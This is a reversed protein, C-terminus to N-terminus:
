AKSYQMYILSIMVIYVYCKKETALKLRMLADQNSIQRERLKIDNYQNRTQTIDYIIMRNLYKCQKLLTSRNPTYKYKVYVNTSQM